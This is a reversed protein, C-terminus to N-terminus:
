EEIGEEVTIRVKSGTEWQTAIIILEGNEGDELSEVTHWVSNDTKNEPHLFTIGLHSGTVDVDEISVEQALFEAFDEFEVVIPGETM